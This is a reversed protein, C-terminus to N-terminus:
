EEEGFKSKYYDEIQNGLAIITAGVRDHANIKLFVNTAYNKITKESLYLQEGIVKNSYGKSIKLLVEAERKSLSDLVSKAKAKSKIDMFLTSVLSKDIYKEGSYVAKIADIIEEGASDKLVYGDVGQNIAEHITQRQNEITLMIIKIDMEKERIQELLKMGNLQPMNIDLLMIDPHYQKILELAKEGNEAEGIVIFDEELSIISKLGQRILAHDDVILIKVVKNKM